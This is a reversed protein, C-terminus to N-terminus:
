LMVYDDPRCKMFVEPLQEKGMFILM